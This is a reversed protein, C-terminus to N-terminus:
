PQFLDFFRSLGAQLQSTLTRSLSCPINVFDEDNNPNSDPRQNTVRATITGCAAATPLKVYFYSTQGTAGPVGYVVFNPGVESPRYLYPAITTNTSTIRMVGGVGPLNSNNGAIFLVLTPDLPSRSGVVTLDTVGSVTPAIPSPSLSPSPTPPPTPSPTPMSTPTINTVSTTSCTPLNVTQLPALQDNIRVETVCRLTPTSASPNLSLTANGSGASQNITLKGSGPVPQTAPSDGQPSSDNPVVGSVQCDRPNPCPGPNIVPGSSITYNGSGAGAWIVLNATRITETSDNIIFHGPQGFNVFNRLQGSFICGRYDPPLPRGFSLPFGLTGTSNDHPIPICYRQQLLITNALGLPGPWSFLVNARQFFDGEPFAVALSLGDAHSYKAGVIMTAALRDLPDDQRRGTQLGMTPSTGRFERSAAPTAINGDPYPVFLFQHTAYQAPSRDLHLTPNAYDFAEADWYGYQYLFGGYIPNPLRCTGNSACWVVAAGTQVLPGNPNNPNLGFVRDSVIDAPREPQFPQNSDRLSPSIRYRLIFNTGVRQLAIVQLPNQPILGSPDGVSPDTSSLSVLNSQGRYTLVIDRGVAEWTPIDNSATSPSISPAVSVVAPPNVPATGALLELEEPTLQSDDLPVGPAVVQGPRSFYVQVTPSVIFRLTPTRVSVLAWRTRNGAPVNFQTSFICSESSCTPTVTRRQAALRFTFNATRALPTSATTLRMTVQGNVNHSLVLVPAPGFHELLSNSGATSTLQGVTFAVGAGRNITRFNNVVQTSLHRPSVVGLTVVVIIGACIALVLLWIRWSLYRQWFSKRRRPM